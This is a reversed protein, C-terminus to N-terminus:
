TAVKLVAIELFKKKELFVETTVALYIVLILLLKNTNTM